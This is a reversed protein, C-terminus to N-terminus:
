LSAAVPSAVVYLSQLDDHRPPFEPHATLLDAEVVRRVSQFGAQDIAWGLLEFDFLNRHEGNQHFLYNIFHQVPTGDLSANPWRRRRDDELSSGKDDVYGTCVKALDPCSLWMQGDPALIRRLERLLPILQDHLCLHEIVHQMVVAEVSSDRFPLRGSALDLPFDSGSVDCNLWGTVLRNGCGLHLRSANEPAPRWRMQLRARLRAVDYRLYGITRPDFQLRTMSLLLSRDGKGIRQTRPRPRQIPGMDKPIAAFRTATDESM